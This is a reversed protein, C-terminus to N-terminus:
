KLTLRKFENEIKEEILAKASEIKEAALCLKAGDSIVTRYWYHENTGNLTIDIGDTSLQIAVAEAVRNWIREEVIKSLYSSDILVKRYKSFDTSDSDYATAKMERTHLVLGANCSVDSLKISPDYKKAFNIFDDSTIAM